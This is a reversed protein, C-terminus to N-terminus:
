NSLFQDRLLYLQVSLLCYCLINDLSNGHSRKQEVFKNIPTINKYKHATVLLDKYRSKSGEIYIANWNKKEVLAFTNSIYKGDWAGFEVCWPEENIKGELRLLLEQIVGDEGNQSHINYKYKELDSYNM